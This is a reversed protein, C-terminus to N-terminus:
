PPVTEAVYIRECASCKGQLVITDSGDGDRITALYSLLVVVAFLISRQCDCLKTYGHRADWPVFGIHEIADPLIGLKDAVMKKTDHLIKPEAVNM